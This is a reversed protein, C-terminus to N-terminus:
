QQWEKKETYFLTSNLGEDIFEESCLIAMERIHTLYWPVFASASIWLLRRQLWDGGPIPRWDSPFTQSKSAYLYALQVKGDVLAEVIKREYEDGEIIDGEQVKKDFEEKSPWSLLRVVMSDKRDGTYIAFPYAVSSNGLLRYGLVKGTVAHSM